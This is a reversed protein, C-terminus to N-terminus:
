SDFQTKSSRNENSQIIISYFYFSIFSVFCVFILRLFHIYNTLFYFSITITNGRRNYIDRLSNRSNLLFNAIYQFIIFSIKIILLMKHYLWDILMILLSKLFNYVLSFKKDYLLMFLGVMKIEEM